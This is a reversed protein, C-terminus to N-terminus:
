GVDRLDPAAAAYDRGPQEVQGGGREGGIRGEIMELSAHRVRPLSAPSELRGNVHSRRRVDERRCEEPPEGRAAFGVELVAEEGGHTGLEAPMRFLIDPLSDRRFPVPCGPCASERM